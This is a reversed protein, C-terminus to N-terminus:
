QAFELIAAVQSAAQPSGLVCDYKGPADSAERVLARGGAEEVIVESAAIDWRSLQFETLVDIAGRAVMAHAFCDAFCRLHPAQARLQTHSDAIGALRFHHEAPASIVCDHL